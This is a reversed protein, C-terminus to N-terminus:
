AETVFRQVNASPGYEPDEDHSIIVDAQKGIFEDASFGGSFDVGFALCADRLSQKKRIETRQDDGEAPLVLYHRLVETMENQADELRLVLMDNGANSVDMEAGTCRLTREGEPVLELEPVDDLGVDIFDNM